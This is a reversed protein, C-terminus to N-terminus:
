AESGDYDLGGERLDGADSRLAADPERDVDELKSGDMAIDEDAGVCM